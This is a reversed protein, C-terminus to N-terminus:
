EGDSGARTYSGKQLEGYYLGSVNNVKVSPKAAVSHSRGAVNFNSALQKEAENVPAEQIELKDIM